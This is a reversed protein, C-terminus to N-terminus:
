AATEEDLARTDQTVELVIFEAPKNTALGMRVTLKGAFIDSEPNLGKGTDVFFATAPDKSRFAGNKMQGRLINTTTRNVTARLEEDNNSNRAFELAGKVTQEIFIVGRREGVSPFNSTGRLTRAGDIFRPQGPLRTLPNIRKPFVLDRKAEDLTEETEFGRVGFLRGKDVNAPQRYVGGPRSADVRAYTGLVHGSPAVTLLEDDGYITKNPNTVKVRPWYIAAHESLNLIAATTEVYTVIQVATQSAPPDLVAFISRVRTVECYTILANAVAATARQPVSMLTLGQTEDFSRIGVAGAANGIFDNDDLSTLGDDGGTLPGHLVGAAVLAGDPLNAPPTAALLDTVVIYNSGLNVANVITEVYNTAATTMTLNPFQEVIAGSVLVKLNFESASGSTSPDIRITISNAYAGETKGDVQLTDPSSAAIGSHLINDFGFVTDATSAVKVEISSSAGVTGSTIVIAGGVNTVVVGSSDILDAELVIKVEAVTVADIDGVDGTGTDTGASHGIEGLASGSVVEVSSDTGQVDSSIDVEGTDEVAFGGSMQTNIAAAVLAATTETGAFTITQNTGGDIALVLTLGTLDVISLGSGARTARTADFTATDDATADVSAIITDGPTLAFTETNTGTIAGASAIVAATPINFTGIAATDITPTSLNSWHATRSVYMFQGGNDFFAQVAARSDLNNATYGGYIREYEADSTVLSPARLPGREAIVVTALVATPLAVTTRIGPETEVVVIKSALLETSM